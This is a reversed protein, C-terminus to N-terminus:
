IVIVADFYLSISNFALIRKAIKILFKNRSKQVFSKWILSINSLLLKKISKRLNKTALRMLFSYMSTAALVCPVTVAGSGDVAFGERVALTQM